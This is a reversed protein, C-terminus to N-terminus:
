ASKSRISPRVQGHEALRLALEHVAGVSGGKLELEIESVPMSRDGAKLVGNDFAVEITGSPLDVVRQHRKIDTSFVAELGQAGVDARLKEPIFPMALALDPTMSAVHAEWEGRRFPDDELEAKVKQTYRTGSHRVRLTLGNRWLTRKPTDYYVSKLHKRTGKNRANSAIVPANNFSTLRDADVLLKLEIESAPAVPAGVVAAEGQPPEQVPAIESAAPGQPQPAATDPTVTIAAASDGNKKGPQALDSNPGAAARAMAGALAAANTESM